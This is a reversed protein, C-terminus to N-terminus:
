EYESKLRKLDRLDKEKKKKAEVKKNEKEEAEREITRRKLEKDPNEFFAIPISLHMPDYCGMCGDTGDFYISDGDVHWGKPSSFLIEEQKIYRAFVDWIHADIAARSREITDLNKRINKM